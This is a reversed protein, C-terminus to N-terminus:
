LQPKKKFTFTVKNMFDKDRKKEKKAKENLTWEWAKERDKLLEKFFGQKM